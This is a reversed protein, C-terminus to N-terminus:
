LAEAFDASELVEAYTEGVVWAEELCSSVGDMTRIGCGRLCCRGRWRGRRLRRGARGRRRVGGSRGRSARLFRCRRRGPLGTGHRHRHRLSM